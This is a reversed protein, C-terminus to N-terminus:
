AELGAAFAATDAYVDYATIKGDAVSFVNVMSGKVVYGSKKYKWKGECFNVFKHDGDISDVIKVEVIDLHDRIISFFRDFGEIGDFRGAWPLQGTQAHYTIVIDASLIELLSDRDRDKLFDYYDTVIDRTSAM